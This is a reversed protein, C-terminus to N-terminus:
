YRLFSLAPVPKFTHRNGDSVPMGCLIESKRGTTLIGPESGGGIAYHMTNGALHVMHRTDLAPIHRPNKAVVIQIYINTTWGKALRFDARERLTRIRISEIDRGWAGNIPPCNAKFIDFARTVDAENMSAGNELTVTQAAAEVGMFVLAATLAAAVCRKM